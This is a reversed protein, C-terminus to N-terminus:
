AHKPQGERWKTIREGIGRIVEINVVAAECACTGLRFDCGANFDNEITPELSDLHIATAFIPRSIHNFRSNHNLRSNHHTPTLM